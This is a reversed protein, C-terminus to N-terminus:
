RVRRKRSSVGAFAGLAVLLLTSPVPVDVPEFDYSAAYGNGSISVDDFYVDQGQNYTGVGMSLAVLDAGSFDSNFAAMWDTLTKLPPGGFSNAQGFGGNWWFLGSDATIAVSEWDDTPVLASSGESGPQNWYPEYILTGFCDDGQACGTNLISLKISPAANPNGVDEKYYSYNLSFSNSFLASANGYSDVVAVEAKDANDFGTTLRAAGIPLPQNNELNGGQGTLDVISAQGTGRMDSEFWVGPTPTITYPAFSNVVAADTPAAFSVAVFLAGAPAFLRYDM